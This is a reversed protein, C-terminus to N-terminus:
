GMNRLNRHGFHQCLDSRPLALPPAAQFVAPLARTHSRCWSACIASARDSRWWPRGRIRCRAPRTGPARRRSRSWLVSEAPSQRAARHRRVKAPGVDRDVVLDHPVPDGRLAGALVAVHLAGVAGLGPLRLGDTQLKPVWPRMSSSMSSSKRVFGASVCPAMSRNSIMPDRSFRAAMSTTEWSSGLSHYRRISLSNM